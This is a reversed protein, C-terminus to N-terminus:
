NEVPLLVLPVEFAIEILESALAKSPKVGLEKLMEAQRIVNGKGAALKGHASDYSEKAQRIREGVKDLDVVFGVLKDYLEGGRRAIEQANRSQQEQRWLHAVTRVVFLLTSPSVLLVNKKWAEMFLERDHTVALMFAPEVPVFMLVFDLSKLAYIDQYNKSSLGKIHTRVSDLHRKLAGERDADEEANVHDDYANLSVKADVVLHRGEPLRIVVDPQARTGDEREHSEQVEYEDGKRLGSAELVKELILEGWTGQTKNSGKLARTLNHADDSLKINLAMLQRVQEGLASRDKNEKVYVDEVKTQFEKIKESLPNLLIGLNTQNQETFRKTKEELIENALNKFQDGLQVKAENLLVLKEEASQREGIMRTQVEALETNIRANEIQAQERESKESLLASKVETLQSRESKIEASLQGNVERLDANQKRVEGFDQEAEFLKKELLPLRIAQEELTARREDSTKLEVQASKTESQAQERGSKEQLLINKMEALQGHESKIEASLQGNVERLDANQKTVEALRQEFESLKNELQPLRMVQEELTARREDSAKLEVKASKADTHFNDASAEIEVLRDRSLVLAQKIEAETKSLRLVEQQNERLANGITLVQEELAPVRLVRENLQSRENRALDLEDRWIKAQKKIEELEVLRHSRDEEASRLREAMSALEVKASIGGQEFAAVVKGRFVLWTVAIGIFLGIVIWLFSISQNDM